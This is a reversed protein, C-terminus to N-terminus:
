LTVRIEFYTFHIMNFTLIKDNCKEFCYKKVYKDRLLDFFICLVISIDVIVVNNYKM